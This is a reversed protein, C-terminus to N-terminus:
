GKVENISSNDVPLCVEFSSGKGVGSKVAVAGGHAMVIGHVVALGLGTGQGIDKTTFFPVFLQRQVEADMGVGTDEVTLFIKGASSRTSLTLKGGQPM